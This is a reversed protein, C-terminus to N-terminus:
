MYRIETKVEIQNERVIILGRDDWSEGQWEIAGSVTYGSPEIFNKIIYELWEVYCYFKENQDWAINGDEDVIWQCWLGPQTKPPRNVNLISPDDFNASFSDEGGIFYEGDTGLEGNFCQEKWGPFERKILEPDRWMHRVGAFKNLFDTLEPTFPKDPKLAGRFDTTYGM